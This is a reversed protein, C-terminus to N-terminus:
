AEVLEDDFDHEELDGAPNVTFKPQKGDGNLQVSLERVANELEAIREAACQDVLTALLNDAHHEPLRVERMVGSSVDQDVARCEAEGILLVPQGNAFSIVYRTGDPKDIGVRRPMLTASASVVVRIPLRATPQGKPKPM